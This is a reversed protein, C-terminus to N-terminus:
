RCSSGCETRGPRCRRRCGPRCSACTLKGAEPPVGDVEHRAERARDAVHAHDEVVEATKEAAVEPQGM